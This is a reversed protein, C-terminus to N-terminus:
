NAFAQKVKIRYRSGFKQELKLVEKTKKSIFFTEKNNPSEHVLLWCDVDQGDFGELKGSGTVTYYQIQPPLSGLEYFNIGFTRGEKYPLLPFTELDLHWNLVYQQTATKFADWARKYTRATDADSLEHSAMNGTKKTLDFITNGRGKWWSDQYYPQFTKADSVSYVKHTVTDNSEWQQTVAIADRGEHQILDIRRNWMQYNYRASDTGNKFYVLWRHMGPKLVKTNIDKEKIILTDKQATAQLCVVVCLLALLKKM